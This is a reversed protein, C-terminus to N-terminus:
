GGYNWPTSSLLLPRFDPNRVGAGVIECVYVTHDGREVRDTVRAELWASLEALLPAGTAPGPAWSIGHLRQGDEDAPPRFFREAVDEQGEDLFHVAIAGSAEVAEHMRSNTQVGIMVLPPHFSCQSLWTLTSAAPRGAEISTMVYMGYPIRRLVQRKADEDM